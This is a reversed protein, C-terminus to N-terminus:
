LVHILVHTQRDLYMYFGEPKLRVNNVDDAETNTKRFKLLQIYFNTFNIINQRVSYTFRCTTTTYMIFMGSRPNEYTIKHQPIKFLHM